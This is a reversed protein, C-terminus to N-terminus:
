VCLCVNNFRRIWCLLLSSMICIFSKLDRPPVSDPSTEGSSVKWSRQYSLWDEVVLYHLLFTSRCLLKTLSLIVWDKVYCFTQPWSKDMLWVLVILDFDGVVIWFWRSHVVLFLLLLVYKPILLQDVVVDSDAISRRLWFSCKRALIPGAGVARCGVNSYVQIIRRWSFKELLGLLLDCVLCVHGILTLLDFVPFFFYILGALIALCPLIAAVLSPLLM